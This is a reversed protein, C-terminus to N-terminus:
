PIEKKKRKTSLQFSKDVADVEDLCCDADSPYSRWLPAAGTAYTAVFTAAESFEEITIVFSADRGDLWSQFSCSDSVTSADGQLPHNVWWAMWVLM